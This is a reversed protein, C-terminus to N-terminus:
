LKDDAQPLFYSASASPTHPAGAPPTTHTSLSPGWSSTVPFSRAIAKGSKLRAVKARELARCIRLIDADDPNLIGQTAAEREAAVIRAIYNRLAGDSIHINIKELWENIQRASHGQDRLDLIIARESIIREILSLTPQSAFNAACSRLFTAIDTKSKDTM